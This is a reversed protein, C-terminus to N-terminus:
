GAVVEFTASNLVQITRARTRAHIGKKNRMISMLYSGHEREGKFTLVLMVMGCACCCV